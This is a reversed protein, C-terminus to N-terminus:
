TDIAILYYFQIKNKDQKGAQIVSKPLLLFSISALLNWKIVSLEFLLKMKFSSISM